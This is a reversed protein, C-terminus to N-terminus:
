AVKPALGPFRAYASFSIMDAAACYVEEADPRRLDKTAVV